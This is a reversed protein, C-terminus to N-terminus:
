HTWHSSLAFLVHVDGCRLLVLLVLLNPYFFCLCQEKKPCTSVVAILLCVCVCLACVCYISLTCASVQTQWPKRPDQQQPQAPQHYPHLSSLLEEQQILPLFSVFPVPQNTVSRRQPWVADPLLDLRHPRARVWLAPQHHCVQLRVFVDWDCCSILGLIM